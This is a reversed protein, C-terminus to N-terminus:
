IFRLTFANSIDVIIRWQASIDPDLLDFDLKMNISVSTNIIKVNGQKWELLWILIPPKNVAPTIM